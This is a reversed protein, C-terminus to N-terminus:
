LVPQSLTFKQTLEQYSHRKYSMDYFIMLPGLSAEFLSRIVNLCGHMMYYGSLDYIITFRVCANENGLSQSIFAGVSTIINVACAIIMQAIGYVLRIQALNPSVYGVFNLGIEFAELAANFCRLGNYFSNDFSVNM